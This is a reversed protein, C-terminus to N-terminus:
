ELWCDCNCEIVQDIAQSISAVSPMLIGSTYRTDLEPPVDGDEIGPNPPSDPVPGPNPFPPGPNNPLEDIPEISPPEYRYRPVIIIPRGPEAPDDNEPWPPPTWTGDENEDPGPYGDEIGQITGNIMLTKFDTETLESSLNNDVTLGASQLRDENRESRMMGILSQGGLSSTDSIAELTQANMHPKTDSAFEPISDVFTIQTNPYPNVFYDKPIDVLGLATFRTRQERTLGSGLQNWANNLSRVSFKGETFINSIEDNAQDIYSSVASNMPNPWGEQPASEGSPPTLCEGRRNYISGPTNIGSTSRQGDSLVPLREIPPREVRLSILPMNENVWSESRPPGSPDRPPNNLTDQGELDEWNDQIVNDIWVVQNYNPTNWSLRGFTKRGLSAANKDNTGMQCSPPQFVPVDKRDEPDFGGPNSPNVIGSCTGCQEYVNGNLVWDDGGCNNTVSPDRVYIDVDPKLAGGRGYGGGQTTQIDLQYKGLSIKPQGSTSYRFQSLTTEETVPNFYPNPDYDPQEPDPQYDPNSDNEVTEPAIYDQTTQWSNNQSVSFTAPDWTVALFLEKYINELKLSTLDEIYRYINRWSYPLGSMSGYLDSMTYTNYPGSGQAIKQKAEASASTNTPVDAQNLLPLTGQTQAGLNLTELNKVTSAFSPLTSSEISKIQRMSYSFAGAAIAQDEPLIGRLYSDFGTPLESNILDTNSQSSSRTPPKINPSLNGILEKVATSKLSSNIGGRGNFIPYFTKAPQNLNTSYIPVTLSRWTNGAYSFLKKVNLLDALSEFGDDFFGARKIRVDQVGLRNLIESLNSSSSQSRDGRIALFAGYIQREQDVTLGTEKGSVINSIQKNTLGSSLLALSLEPTIANNKDLTKLLTSPLGFSDLTSLDIANGLTILEDGFSGFANSVGSIEATNLDDLSTFMGRLFDQSNHVALIAQNTSQVWSDASLYSGLFEKYEPSAVPNDNNWNFENHAQLAHLRIYGWQTISSNDNSTNYPFWSVAQGYETNGEIPYGTNAPATTGLQKQALTTWVGANDKIQYTPPKSNGLAYIKNGTRGSISILDNYTTNTLKNRNYGDHISWTLLRLVTDQVLKGFTYNDNSNSSGMYSAAIPNINLGKNVLHEGLVNVGLPNQKGSDAM